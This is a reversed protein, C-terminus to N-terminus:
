ENKVGLDGKPKVVVNWEEVILVFLDGGSARVDVEHEIEGETYILKTLTVGNVKLKSRSTREADPHIRKVYRDVEPSTPDICDPIRFFM